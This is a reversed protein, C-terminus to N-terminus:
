KAKTMKDESLCNLKVLSPYSLLDIIDNSSFHCSWWWEGRCQKRWWPRWVQPSTILQKGHLPTCLTHSPTQNSTGQGGNHTTVGFSPSGTELYFIPFWPIVWRHIRSLYMKECHWERWQFQLPNMEKRNLPWELFAPLFTLPWECVM